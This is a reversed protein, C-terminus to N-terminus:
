IEFRVPDAEPQRDDLYDMRIDAARCRNGPRRITGSQVYKNWNDIHATVFLDPRDEAM